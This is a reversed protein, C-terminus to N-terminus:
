GRSRLLSISHWSTWCKQGGDGYDSIMESRKIKDRKGNWLFKFLFDIIEKLSNLCTRLSSLIYVLQSAALTTIITIKGPLTLRKKQWNNLVDEIKHFKDKYNMKMEENQDTCFWVGLAKVKGNAWKM